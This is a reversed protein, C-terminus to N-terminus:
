NIYNQLTRIYDNSVHINRAHIDNDLKLLGVPKPGKGYGEAESLAGIRLFLLRRRRHMGSLGCFAAKATPM